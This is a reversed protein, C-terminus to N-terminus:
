IKLLDIRSEFLGTVSQNILVAEKYDSIRKPLKSEGSGKSYGEGLDTLDAGNSKM